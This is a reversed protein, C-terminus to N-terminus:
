SDKGPIGSRECLRVLEAVSEVATKEMMRGRHVKVTHETIGLQNAIQKNLLGQIVLEMVEYERDSLSRVRDCFERLEQDADRQQIHRSIAQRVTAVLQKEDVPKTLFDVAGSRMAEVTTPIDGHGTLFVIPLDIRRDVLEQQMEIGTQGPMQVDLIVCGPLDKLDHELFERATGFSAVQFGFSRFTRTTAKRVSEDDDVVYVIAETGTADTTM